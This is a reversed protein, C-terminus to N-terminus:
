LIGPKVVSSVVLPDRVVFVPTTEVVSLAPFLILVGQDWVVMHIHLNLDLIRVMTSERIRLHLHVPLHHPLVRKNRNSLHSTPMVRKYSQGFENRTKARKSRYKERDRLKEEEVQQVYVMLRSIDMGGILMVIKNEKSSSHGM